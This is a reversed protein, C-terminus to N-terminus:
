KKELVVQEKYQAAVAKMAKNYETFDEPYIMIKKNIIVQSAIIQNDKQKYDINIGVMDNDFSFNKPQYTVTYGDPIELIHHQRIEYKFDEEIPVKRKATDIVRNELIKELNLNIYYENGMKKGYGPVEFDANINIVNEAPAARDIKYEGLIFKNSAKGMRTKIYDKLTREDKYLLSNYVEEGFYGTYNVREKGKIGDNAFWIFTSDTMVTKNSEAVPVRIIKYENDTIGVLAEKSQISYPHMGYKAHPDTGDLFVWENDIYATSIMHNDVIPLPTESYDYPISRTGIWTYYAKIGAMRLMQTIISSMDKCDGYRKNCVEAAQRPRFGEIGQEFAVYKINEQVWKYIKKAKASETEISLTLSDVIKKLAPDNAINLDKTFAANWKFLDDINSLFNQQGNNGKYNTIYYIVHPTYYSESPANGYDDPGKINTATWTYITEQRKKETTLKFVGKTDNKVLYKISVDNPVTLTFSANVVPLYGPLSFPTLLHCDKNYQTYEVHEIAGPSLGPFNFDTQKVDDYFVSNSSSSGTKMDGVKLKKYKGEGNDVLTYADLSKLENFSSHYVSYRSYLNANKESLVLLENEYKSEAVPEGNKITIEVAKNYKLFIIESGQYTKKVEDITQAISPLGVGLLISFLITIYNKM